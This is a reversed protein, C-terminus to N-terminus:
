LKMGCLKDDLMKWESIYKAIEKYFDKSHGKHKIHVLEHTVIYDILTFTLKRPDVGKILGETYILDFLGILEEPSKCYYYPYDNSPEVYILFFWAENFPGIDDTKTKTTKNNKEHRAQFFLPHITPKRETYVVCSYDSNKKIMSVWDIPQIAIEFNPLLPFNQVGKIFVSGYYEDLFNVNV